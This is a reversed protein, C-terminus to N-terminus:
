KCAIGSLWWNSHQDPEAMWFFWRLQGRCFSLHSWPVGQRQARKQLSVSATGPLTSHYINSRYWRSWIMDDRWTRALLEPPPADEGSKNLETLDGIMRNVLDLTKESECPDQPDLLLGEHTRPGPYIFSAGTQPPLPNVDLQHMVGILDCFFSSRVIKGDEICNFDAYRLFTMKRNAPLGMWSKDVLGMFHGM